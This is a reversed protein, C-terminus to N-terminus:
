VVDPAYVEDLIDPNDVLEWARRVLAKNEEASMPRRGEGAKGPPNVLLWRM